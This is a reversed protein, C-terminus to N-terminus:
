PLCRCGGAAGLSLVWWVMTDAACLGSPWEWLFYIKGILVGISFKAYILKRLIIQKIFFVSFSDSFTVILYSLSQLLLSTQWIFGNSFWIVTKEWSKMCHWFITDAVVITWQSLTRWMFAKRHSRSQSKAPKVFHKSSCPIRCM